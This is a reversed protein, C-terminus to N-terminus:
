GVRCISLTRSITGTEGSEYTIRSTEVFTEYWQRIV